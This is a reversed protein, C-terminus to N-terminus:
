AIVAKFSRTIDTLAVVYYKRAYVDNHRENAQREQEVNIGKKNFWTVAAKTGGVVTGETADKKTYVNVNAVTGIYGTRAFAEVYKLDDALNKRLKAIDNPHLFAFIELPDKFNLFKIM